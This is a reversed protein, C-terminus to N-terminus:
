VEAGMTIVFRPQLSLLDGWAPTCWWRGGCVSKTESNGCSMAGCEDGTNPPQCNAALMVATLNNPKHTMFAHGCQFQYTLDLIRASFTVFRGLRSRLSSGEPSDLRDNVAIYMCVLMLFGRSWSFASGGADDM